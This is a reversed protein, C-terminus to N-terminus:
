DGVDFGVIAVPNCIGYLKARARSDEKAWGAIELASLTKSILVPVTFFGHM